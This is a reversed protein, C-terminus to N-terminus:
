SHCACSPAQSAGTIFEDYLSEAAIRAEEPAVVRVQVACGEETVAFDLFGCCEQERRVMDNVRDRAEPAYTLILTLDNREHTRLADRNLEAIAAIRTEFAGASLSCAIPADKM